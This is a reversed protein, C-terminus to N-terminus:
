KPLQTAAYNGLEILRLFPAGLRHGIAFANEDSSVYGVIKFLRELSFGGGLM